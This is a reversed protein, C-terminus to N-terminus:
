GRDRPSPSTYLLCGKGEGNLTLSQGEVVDQMEVVGNFTAKVPGVKQVVVAEFNTPSTQSMSQCGPISAQLVDPNNLAQWVTMRDAAIVQVGELKM